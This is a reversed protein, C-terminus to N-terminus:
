ILARRGFRPRFSLFNQCRSGFRWLARRSIAAIAVRKFESSMATSKHIFRRSKRSKRGAAVPLSVAHVPDPLNGQGRKDHAQKCPKACVQSGQALFKAAFDGRLAPFQTALERKQSSFHSLKPFPHCMHFSREFSQALGNSGLARCLGYSGLAKRYLAPHRREM